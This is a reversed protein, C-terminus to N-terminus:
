KRDSIDYHLGTDRPERNFRDIEEDTPLVRRYEDVYLGIQDSPIPQFSPLDSRLRAEPKLRFDHRALDVFGPDADYVRNAGSAFGAAVTTEAGAKVERWLWPTKANVVVNNEIRSEAPLASVFVFGVTSQVAINNRCDITQPSKAQSGIKYLFSTGRKGGTSKLFAINGFLTMDPHDHDFYIGDGDDSDHMFNYRFTHGGFRGFLDYSYFAGMDNSVTCYRFVENFEFISDWSGFLVGAHPTDHILNHAVLMGVATHHGGGGGGTFGSNVGPAYVREIEAFHHIHNNVARHGAPVRPTSKEDGGGLWVGGAGLHYLDCSLVAHDKGGDLVVGYRDVNRVTCGAVLVHDGGKVEIGHGLAAEITLGRLTMYAAGDLRVVPADTDALFLEASGLASPPNLYLKQDVFDICWEGPQDCEELLNLLWYAERGNGAPRTYKNGIGGAVPKAFTVTRHTVDIAAVRIAENQWAVRWYGKLWVGRDLAGAWRAHAAAFEERYEFVGGPSGPAVKPTNAPARWNADRPGGANDIVRKMAMMGEGNPFRALPLRHGNFFLDPLGGRDNFIDPMKDRHKVGLAILDLAVIKGRLAPAIRALTAPDTVVKFSSAELRRAGILRVNAGEESRYTVPANASGSDEASLTFGDGSFYDGNALWVTIPEGPQSHRLERAAERARTLTAFPKTRTGDARDVGGPSVYLDAAFAGPTFACLLTGTLVLQPLRLTSL